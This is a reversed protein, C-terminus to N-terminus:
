TEALNALRGALVELSLLMQVCKESDKESDLRADGVPVSSEVLRVLKAYARASMVALGALCQVSLM